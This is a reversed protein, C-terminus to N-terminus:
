PKYSLGHLKRIPTVAPVQRQNLTFPLIHCKVEESPVFGQTVLEAPRTELLESVNRSKTGVRIEKKYM